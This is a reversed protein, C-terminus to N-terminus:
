EGSIEAQPVDSLSFGKTGYIHRVEGCSRSKSAPDGHACAALAVAVCLLWWGRARLEMAPGAAGGAPGTCGGGAFPLALTGACEARPGSAGAAPSASVVFAPPPQARPARPALDPRERRRGLARCALACDRGPGEAARSLPPSPRAPRPACPRPPARRPPAIRPARPGREAGPAARSARIQQSSSPLPTARLARATDPTGSPPGEVGLARPPPVM